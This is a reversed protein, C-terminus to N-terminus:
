QCIVGGTRTCYPSGSAPVCLQGACPTVCETGQSTAVCTESGTCTQSQCTGASCNQGNCSVKYVDQPVLTVTSATGGNNGTVIRIGGDMSLSNNGGQSVPSEGGNSASQTGGTESGPNAAGGSKSSASCGFASAACSLVVLWLKRKFSSSTRLKVPIIGIQRIGAKRRGRVM